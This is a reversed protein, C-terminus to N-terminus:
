GENAGSANERRLAGVLDEDDGVLWRPLGRRRYSKRGCAPMMKRM